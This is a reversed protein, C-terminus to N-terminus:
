GSCRRPGQCPQALPGTRRYRRGGGMPLRIDVPPQQDRALPPWASTAPATPRETGSDCSLVPALRCLFVAKSDFLPGRTWPVLRFAPQGPWVQLPRRQHGGFAEGGLDTPQPPRFARALTRPALQILAPHQHRPDQTPISATPRGRRQPTSPLQLPRELHRHSTLTRGRQRIRPRLPTGRDHDESLARGQRQRPTYPKTKQHRTRHGVIRAFDNSRYCAGNDTVIRHIHTIGHAAFWVKARALFAAATTGKEDDLPETYALRSFGDVISHLYLYGAKAGATQRPRSGAEPRPQPRPHAVRRRRPDPRGEERGSTGHSGALPRHDQRAQPQQSRQPRHVQASWARTPDPPPHRHPPQHPLGARGTRPHDPQGVVEEGAALDRDASHGM